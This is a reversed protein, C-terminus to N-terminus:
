FFFSSEPTIPQKHLNCWDKTLSDHVKALVYEFTRLAMRTYTQFKDDYKKLLPFLHYYESCPNRGKYIENKQKRKIICLIRRVPCCPNRRLYCEEM